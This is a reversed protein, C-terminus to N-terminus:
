ERQAYISKSFMSFVCLGVPSVSLNETAIVGCNGACIHLVREGNKEAEMCRHIMPIPLNQGCAVKKWQLSLVNCQSVDVFM